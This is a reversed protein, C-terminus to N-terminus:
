PTRRRRTGGDAVSYKGQVVGDHIVRSASLHPSATADRGVLSVNEFIAQVRLPDCGQREACAILADAIAEVEADTPRHGSQMVFTTLVSM